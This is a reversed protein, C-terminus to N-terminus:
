HDFFLTPKSELVKEVIKVADTDSRSAWLVPLTTKQKSLLIARYDLSQLVDSCYMAEHIGHVEILLRPKASAILEKGGELIAGEAGEADIKIFQPAGFNEAAHNLTITKVTVSKFSQYHTHAAATDVGGYADLYAMSDDGEDAAYRLNLEGCEGAVAVQHIQTDHLESRTIAQRLREAHREVPEFTHVAGKTALKSLAMMYYGYHGGIDFCRSEPEVLDCVFQMIEQEYRGSRILDTIAREKPTLLSCGAAVGQEIEHWEFSM